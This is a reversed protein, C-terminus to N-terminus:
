DSCKRYGPISLHFSAGDTEFETKNISILREEYETIAALYEGPIFAHADSNPIQLTDANM